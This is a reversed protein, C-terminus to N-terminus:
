MVRELIEKVRVKYNHNERIYESYDQAEGAMWLGDWTLQDMLKLLDNYSKYRIFNDKFLNDEGNNIANSLFISGSSLGEFFRMNLDNSCTINLVIWSQRFIEMMEEPTETKGIYCSPHKLKLNNTYLTRQRTNLRGVFCWLYKRIKLEEFDVLSDDCALPLWSYGYQEAFDKNASFVYKFDKIKDWRNISLKNSPALHLMRHTDICWYVSKDRLHKPPGYYSLDDDVHIYFDADPISKYNDDSVVLDNILTFPSYHYVEFGLEILAKKVYRGTTYKNFNDDYVVVIKM